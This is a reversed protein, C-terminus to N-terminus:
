DTKCMANAVSNKWRAACVDEHCGAREDEEVEEYGKGDANTTDMCETGITM